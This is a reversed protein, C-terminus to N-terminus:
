YNDKSTDNINVNDTKITHTQFSTVESCCCMNQLMSLTTHHPIHHPTTHYTTHLPTTHLPTACALTNTCDFYDPLNM